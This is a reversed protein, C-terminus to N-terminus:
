PLTISAAHDGVTNMAATVRLCAGEIDEGQAIFIPEGMVINIKGFPRPLYSSDWSSLVKKRDNDYSMPLIPVNLAQAMQVVGPKTVFAPGRPGDPSLAVCGGARLVRMMSMMAQMGDKSSSGRIVKTGFLRM